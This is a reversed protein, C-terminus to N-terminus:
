YRANNQISLFLFTLLCGLFLGGYIYIYIYIYAHISPTTQAFYICIDYGM